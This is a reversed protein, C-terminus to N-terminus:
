KDKNKVRTKWPAQLSAPLRNVLAELAPRDPGMYFQFVRRELDPPQANGPVDAGHAGGGLNLFSLCLNGRFPMTKVLECRLGEDEPYYTNAWRGVFNPNDEVRFLQTGYLEPEGPGGLYLLTTVFQDKPDMHPPLKWGARRLMIRLGHVKLPLALAEDVFQDGVSMRLFNRAYPRFREAMAPALVGRVVDRSMSRWVARSFTPIVARDISRLDKTRPKAGVFFEEPPVAERLTQFATAPLLQDIVVHPFPDTFVPASAVRERVHAVIDPINWVEGLTRLRDLQEGDLTYARTLRSLEERQSRIEERQSRIEELAEDLRRALSAIQGDIGDPGTTAVGTAVSRAAAVPQAETPHAASSDHGLHRTFGQLVM